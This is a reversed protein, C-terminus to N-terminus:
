SKVEGLMGQDTFSYYSDGAIILHDLVPIDLMNGADKLQRTIKLDAESPLLSGSPHNHCLIISCALFQLAPRFIMKPDVVTGSMGGRSILERRIIQNARNLLVIWFEEHPLDAFVSRMYEFADASTSVKSRQGTGSAKRRRGLELAAIITVAKAEGMGKFKVLDNVSLKGLSELDNGTSKLIQKSLEVATLERSGSGILIAILETDSLAQRGKELMKERPRDAEAWSKITLKEM